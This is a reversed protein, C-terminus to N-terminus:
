AALEAMFRERDERPIRYGYERIAEITLGLPALKKRINYIQVNVIEGANMNLDDNYRRARVNFLADRSVRDQTMLLSLMAAETKSLKMTGPKILGKEGDFQHRALHLAEELEEIRNAQWTLTESDTNCYKCVTM